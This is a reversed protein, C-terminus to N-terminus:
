LLLFLPIQIRPLTPSRPPSPLLPPQGGHKFKSLKLMMDSMVEQQAAMSKQLADFLETHQQVSVFLGEMRSFMSDQCEKILSLQEEMMRSRTMTGETM